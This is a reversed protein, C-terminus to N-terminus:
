RNKGNEIGMGVQFFFIVMMVRVLAYFLVVMSHIANKRIDRALKKKRNDIYTHANAEM